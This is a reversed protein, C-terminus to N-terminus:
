NETNSRCFPFVTAVIIAWIKTSNKRHKQQIHSEIIVTSHPLRIMPDIWRGCNFYFLFKLACRDGNKKLTIIDISKQKTKERHTGTYHNMVLSLLCFSCIDVRLASGIVSLKKETFWILILTNQKKLYKIGYDKQCVADIWAELKHRDDYISWTIEDHSVMVRIAQVIIM